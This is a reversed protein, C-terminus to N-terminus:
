GSVIGSSKLGFKDYRGELNRIWDGIVPLIMDIRLDSKIASDAAAKSTM